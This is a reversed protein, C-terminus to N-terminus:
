SRQSPGLDVQVNSSLTINFVDNTRELEKEFCNSIAEMVKDAIQDATAGAAAEREKALEERVIERIRQENMANM